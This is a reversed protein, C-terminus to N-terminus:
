MKSVTRCGDGIIRSCLTEECKMYWIYLDNEM